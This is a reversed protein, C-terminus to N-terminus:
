RKRIIDDNLCLTVTAVARRQHSHDQGLRRGRALYQCIPFQVVGKLRSRQCIM